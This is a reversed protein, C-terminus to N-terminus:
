LTKPAITFNRHLFPQLSPPPEGTQLILFHAWFFSISPQQNHSSKSVQSM